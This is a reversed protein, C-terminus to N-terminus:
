FGGLGQLLRELAHRVTQRRVTERDGAFQQQETTIRHNWCLAFWVTGVPKDLTGGDPGAIGSVAVAVQAASLRVVGDLMERVCAESVAGQLELTPSSVGLLSQKADNSYSAVGYGFWASSGAVDTLTKAIWGGTCSEATAVSWGRRQLQEGLQTALATLAQDSPMGNM